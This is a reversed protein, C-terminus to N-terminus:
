KTHTSASKQGQAQKANRYAQIAEWREEETCYLTAGDTFGITWYGRVDARPSVLIAARLGDINKLGGLYIWDERPEHQAGSKFRLPHLSDYTVETLRLVEDMTEPFVNGRETAAMTAMVVLQRANNTNHATRARFDNMGTQALWSTSALLGTFSLCLLFTLPLVIALGMTWRSKWGARTFNKALFHWCCLGVAFAMLGNVLLAGDFEIAQLNHWVFRTSGLVFWLIGRLVLYILRISNRAPESYLLLAGLLILGTLAAATKRQWSVKRWLSARTM